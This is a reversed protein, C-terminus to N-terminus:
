FNWCDARLPQPWTSASNSAIVNQRQEATCKRWSGPPVVERLSAFAAECQSSVKFDKNLLEDIPIMNPPAQQWRVIFQVYKDYEQPTCAGRIADALEWAPEQKPEQAFAQGGFMACALLAFIHSMRTRM